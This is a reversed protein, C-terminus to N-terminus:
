KGFVICLATVGGILGVLGLLFAWWPIEIVRFNEPHDRLEQLYNLFVNGPVM